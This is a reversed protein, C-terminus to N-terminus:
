RAGAPQDDFDVAGGQIRINYVAFRPPTSATDDPTALKALVDDISYRGAGLHALHVQPQELVLADVVPALRLLSQLEADIYLRQATLLAPSDAPAGTAPGVRLGTLALELSWPRFDVSDVTVARGLAATGRTELQWKLVPPLALWGLACTTLWLALAWLARRRWRNGTKQPSATTNEPM